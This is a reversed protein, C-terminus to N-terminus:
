ARLLVAPDIKRARRSPIWTALGSIVVVVLGPILFVRPQPDFISGGGGYTSLVKALGFTLTIGLVVGTAVLRVAQGSVLRVLDRGSAGIAIRIALERARRTVAFSLVGYIGAMTLLM